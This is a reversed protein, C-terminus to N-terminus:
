WCNHWSKEIKMLELERRFWNVLRDNRSTCTTGDQRLIEWWPTDGIPAPQLYWVHGESSKIIVLKDETYAIVTSRRYEVSVNGPILPVIHHALKNFEKMPNMLIEWRNGSRSNGQSIALCKMYGTGNNKCRRLHLPPARWTTLGM